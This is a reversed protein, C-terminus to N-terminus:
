EQWRVEVEGVRVRDGESVGLRRMARHVGMRKLRGFFEERPERDHLDLTLALWNPTPGDIVPVGEEDLYAEFRGTRTPEPTLVPIEQAAAEAEEDQVRRLTWLA